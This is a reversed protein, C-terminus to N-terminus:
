ANMQKAVKPDCVKRIVGRKTKMLRYQYKNYLVVIYKDLNEKFKEEWGVESKRCEWNKMQPTNKLM